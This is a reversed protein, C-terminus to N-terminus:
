PIFFVIIKVLFMSVTRSSLRKSIRLALSSVTTPCSLQTWQRM